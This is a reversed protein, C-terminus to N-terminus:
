HSVDSLDTKGELKIDDKIRAITTDGIGKVESLENVNKFDGHEERYQIIAEAKVVGIGKLASLEDVNAENINVKAYAASALFVAAIITSKFLKM